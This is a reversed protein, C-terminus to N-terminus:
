TLSPLPSSGTKCRGAQNTAKDRRRAGACIHGTTEGRQLPKGSGDDLRQSFPWSPPNMRRTVPWLAGSRRSFSDVQYEAQPM